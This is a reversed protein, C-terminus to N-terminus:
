PKPERKQKAFCARCLTAAPDQPVFDLYEVTGCLPCQIQTLVRSPGKSAPKRTPHEKRYCSPCLYFKQEPTLQFPKGCTACIKERLAPATRPARKQVM